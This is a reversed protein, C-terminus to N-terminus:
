FDEAREELLATESKAAALLAFGAALLALGALGVIWLPLGTFPLKALVASRGLQAAVGSDKGRAGKAGGQPSAPVATPGASPDAPSGTPGAPSNPSGPDQVRPLDQKKPPDNPKDPQGCASRPMKEGPAAGTKLLIDSRGDLDPHTSHGHLWASMSINIVVYPNSESGTRHCIIVHVHAVASNGSRSQKQPEANKAPRPVAGQKHKQKPQASPGGEDSRGHEDQQESVPASAPEADNKASKGAPAQQGAIEDSKKAQGPPVHEQGSPSSQASNEDAKKEQGPTAPKAPNGGAETRLGAGASNALLLVAVIAAYLAALGRM